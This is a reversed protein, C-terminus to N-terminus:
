LDDLSIPKNQFEAKKEIAKRMGAQIEEQKREILEQREQAKEEEWAAEKAEDGIYENPMDGYCTANGLKASEDLVENKVDRTEKDPETEETEMNFLKTIDDEQKDDCLIDPDPRKLEKDLNGKPSPYTILDDGITLKPKEGDAIGRVSEKNGEAVIAEEALTNDSSKKQNHKMKRYEERLDTATTLTITVKADKMQKLSGRVWNDEESDDTDEVDPEETKTVTKVARRKVEGEKEIMLDLDIQASYTVYGTKTEFLNAEPDAKKIIMEGFGLANGNVDYIRLAKHPREDEFDFSIQITKKCLGM